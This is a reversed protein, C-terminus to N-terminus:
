TTWINKINEDPLQEVGVIEINHKRSWKQMDYFKEELAGNCKKLYTTKNTFNSDNCM